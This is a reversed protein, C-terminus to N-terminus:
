GVNVNENKCHPGNKLHTRFDLQSHFVKNLSTMCINTIYREGNAYVICNHSKEIENEAMEYCHFYM